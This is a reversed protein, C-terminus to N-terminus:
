LEGLVQVGLVVNNEVWTEHSFLWTEIVDKNSPQLHGQQFPYLPGCRM